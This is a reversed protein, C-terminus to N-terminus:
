SGQTGVYLAGLNRRYRSSPFLKVAAWSLPSDNHERDWTLAQADVGSPENV